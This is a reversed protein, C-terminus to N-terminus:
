QEKESEVKNIVLAKMLPPVVITSLMVTAVIVTYMEDSLIGSIKGVSAFILCVEGRPVMSIGIIKRNIGEEKAIMYGSLFKGGVAILFLVAIWMLSNYNAPDFINFVSINVFIGVSVFFIPTFIDVLPKLVREITEKQHTEALLIGAAFAGLVLSSGIEMAVLSLVLAFLISGTTLAGRSRMRGLIRILRKVFIEGFAIAIVLFVVSVMITKVTFFVSLEQGPLALASIIGLIALALIDDIIAAGIVIKAEKKDLVNLESLLKCTIGISTATFASAILIKEMSLGGTLLSFGAILAFPLVVGGFGVLFSKKGVELLDKLSLELGTEFLLLLLGIQAFLYFVHNHAFIETDPILGLVSPGILIGAILEGFVPPQHLKQVLEGLIKTFLLIVVFIYIFSTIEM